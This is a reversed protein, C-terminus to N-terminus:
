VLWQYGNVHVDSREVMTMAKNCGACHLPNALLARNKLWNIVRLTSAERLDTFYQLDMSLTKSPLNVVTFLCHFVKIISLSLFTESYSTKQYIILLCRGGSWGM